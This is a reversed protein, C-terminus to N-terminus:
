PLDPSSPSSVPTANSEQASGASSGAILNEERNRKQTKAEVEAQKFSQLTISRRKLNRTRHHIHVMQRKIAALKEMYNKMKMVMQQIDSLKDDSIKNIEKGLDEHIKEQKNTLEKLDTKIKELAPQYLDVFGKALLDSSNESTENIEAISSRLFRRGIASFHYNGLSHFMVVSAFRQAM